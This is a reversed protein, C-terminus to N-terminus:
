IRLVFTAYKFTSIVNDAYKTIFNQLQLGQKQLLVDSTQVGATIEEYGGKRMLYLLYKSLDEMKVDESVEEASGIGFKRCAESYSSSYNTPSSRIAIPVKLGIGLERCRKVKRIAFPLKFPLLIMAPSDGRINLSKFAQNFDPFYGAFFVMGGSGNGRKDIGVFTKFKLLRSFIL